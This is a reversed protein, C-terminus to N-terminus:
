NYQYRYKGGPGQQQIIAQGGSKWGSNNICWQVGGKNYRGFAKKKGETNYETSTMRLSKEEQILADLVEIDEQKIVDLSEREGGTNYLVSIVETRRNTNYIIKISEKRRYLTNYPIQLSEKDTNYFVEREKQM